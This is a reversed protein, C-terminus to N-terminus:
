GMKKEEIKKKKNEVIMQMIDDINDDDYSSPVSEDETEAKTSMAKLMMEVSDVDIKEQIQMLSSQTKEFLIRTMQYLQLMEGNSMDELNSDNFLKDELKSLYNEIIQLKGALKKSLQILSLSVGLGSLKVRKIFEKDPIKGKFLLEEVFKDDEESLVDLAKFINQDVKPAEKIGLDNFFDDDNDDLVDVTLLDKGSSM